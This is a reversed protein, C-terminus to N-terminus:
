WVGNIMSFLTVITQEGKLVVILDFLLNNM